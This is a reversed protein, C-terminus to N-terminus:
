RFKRLFYTFRCSEFSTHLDAAISQYDIINDIRVAHLQQLKEERTYLDIMVQALSTITSSNSLVTWLDM